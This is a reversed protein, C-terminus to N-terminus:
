PACRPASSMRGAASRTCCAPKGAASYAEIDSKLNESRTRLHRCAPGVTVVGTAGLAKLRDPNARSMDHLQVRLRTICADLAAINAAGGFAQVLERALEPASVPQAAVAPDADAEPERGPTKLDFKVIMFRFLTFYMLAWLSGIWLLWLGHTSRGFLVIYDILGHSFTTGHRIGLEICLYYAVGALFAHISLLAPRWSSFPSEIPETIGTFLRTAGRLDYAACRRGIKRRAHVLLAAGGRASGGCDQVPVRRGYQWRHIGATFRYIEGRIMEGTPTVFQGVRLLVARELHSATRISTTRALCAMRFFALNPNGAAAWM